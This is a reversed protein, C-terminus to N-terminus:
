AVKWTAPALLEAFSFSWGTLTLWKGHPLLKLQGVRGNPVSSNMRHAQMQGARLRHNAYGYAKIFALDQEFLCHFNLLDIQLKRAKIRNFVRQFGKFGANKNTRL